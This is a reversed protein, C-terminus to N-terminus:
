KQFPYKLFVLFGIFVIIGAVPGALAVGLPEASTKGFVDLLLTLILASVGIAPRLLLGQVGFYIAERRFGTITEDHDIVDAIIANGIAVFGSLAIGALVILSLGYYFPPFPFVGITGFMSVLISFLLLSGAYVSKKGLRKALRNVVPFFLLAVGFMMGLAYGAWEQGAGMLVTVIFPAGASGISIGMMMLVYGAVYYLFPKNRFCQKIAETLPLSVEKARSWATERIFIVPVYFCIFAIAGMIIAMIRFGFHGVLFGSGLFAVFLGLIGFFAMYTALNIRESRSSVIEPLLALYPAVVVTFFIWLFSFIVALYIANTVSETAVPPHFILIFAIVLLPTGAAIFPIRRGFRTKFKDSFYGILPDAIAGVIRGFFVAGGIFLVPALPTYFFVIWMAAFEGIITSGLNGSSYAFKRFLSLNDGKTVAEKNM